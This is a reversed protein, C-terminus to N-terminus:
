ILFYFLIHFQPEGFSNDDLTNYFTICVKFSLGHHATHIQSFPLSSRDISKKMRNFVISTNGSSTDGIIVAPIKEDKISELKNNGDFTKVIINCSEDSSQSVGSHNQYGRTILYM